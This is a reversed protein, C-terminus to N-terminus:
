RTPPFPYRLAEADSAQKETVFRTLFSAVAATTAAGATPARDFEHDRGAYLHLDTPVGLDLLRRHLTLSSRSGLARDATGHLLITPPFGADALALPSAADLDAQTAQSPFLM